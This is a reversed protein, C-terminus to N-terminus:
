FLGAPSQRRGDEEAGGGPPRTLGVTSQARGHLQIHQQVHTGLETAADKQTKNPKPKTKPKKGKSVSESM